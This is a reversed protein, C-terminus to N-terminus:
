EQQGAVADAGFDHDFDFLQDSPGIALLEGIERGVATQGAASPRNHLQIAQRVPETNQTEM